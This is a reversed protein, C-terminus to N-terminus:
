PSVLETELLILVALFERYGVREVPSGVQLIVTFNLPATKEFYYTYAWRM